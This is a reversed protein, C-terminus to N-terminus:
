FLWSGTNKCMTAENQLGTVLKILEKYAQM